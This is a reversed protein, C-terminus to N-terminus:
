IPACIHYGQQRGEEERGEKSCHCACLLANSESLKFQVYYQTKHSYLIMYVSLIIRNSTIIRLIMMIYNNGPFNIVIRQACRMADAKDNDHCRPHRWVKEFM